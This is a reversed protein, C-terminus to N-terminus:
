VHGSLFSACHNHKLRTIYVDMCYHLLHSMTKYASSIFTYIIPIELIIDIADWPDVYLLCVYSNKFSFNILKDFKTVCGFMENGFCSTDRGRALNGVDSLNSTDGEQKLRSM